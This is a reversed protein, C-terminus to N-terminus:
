SDMSVPTLWYIEDTGETAWGVITTEMGTETDAISVEVQYWNFPGLDSCVPGDLVTVVDDISSVLTVLVTNSHVGPRVSSFTQAVEAQEGIVLMPDPAGPCGMGEEPRFIAVGTVPDVEGTPPPPPTDVVPQLWYTTVYGETSWGTVTEGEPPTYSVPYWYHPGFCVPDGTIDFIAEAPMTFLIVSGGVPDPSQRISSFVQAVQGQAAGILRPAPSSPCDDEAEQAMAPMIITMSLALSMLTALIALRKM